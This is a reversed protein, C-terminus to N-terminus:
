HLKVGIRLNMFFQAPDTASKNEIVIVIVDGTDVKRMAKNDIVTEFGWYAQSLTGAQTRAAWYTHYLWRDDFSETYPTIVSAVGADFAEGNVVCIGLAGFPFEVATLNDSGVRFLGRARVITFPAKPESATLRTDFSSVIAASGGAIVQIDTVTTEGGIWDFARKPQRRQFQPRQLRAM